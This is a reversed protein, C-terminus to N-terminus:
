ATTEDGATSGGSTSDEEESTGSFPPVTFWDVFEKVVFNIDADLGYMKLLNYGM